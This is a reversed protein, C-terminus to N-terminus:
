WPIKRNILDALLGIMLFILSFLFLFVTTDALNRNVIDRVFSAATLFSSTFVVPMAVRLPDFIMSLRLIIMIFNYFDSFPRIKSKGRRKYYNVAVFEVSCRDRIMAITLTTTLSFGDPLLRLYREALERRFIRMGSNVDPIRRRAVYSAFRNILWKAPRRLLPVARVKGLRAGVVMDAEEMKAILETFSAVPYSGDADVIAIWPFAAQRIGDKISAGYGCRERHRLLKFGMERSAEEWQKRSNEGSGDDVMIIEWPIGTASLTEQLQGIVNVATEGENLAPVVFSIGEKEAM